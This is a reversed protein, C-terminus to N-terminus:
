TARHWPGNSSAPRSRTAIPSWTTAKFATASSPCHKTSSATAKPCTSDSCGPIWRRAIKWRCPVPQLTTATSWWVKAAPSTPKDQPPPGRGAAPTPEPSSPQGSRWTSERPATESSKSQSSAPPGDAEAHADVEFRHGADTWTTRYVPPEATVKTTTLDQARRVSDPLFLEPHRDIVGELASALGVIGAERQTAETHFDRLNRRDWRMVAGELGRVMDPGGLNLLDGSETWYMRSSMSKPNGLDAPPAHRDQRFTIYDFREPTRAVWSRPMMQTGDPAFEASPFLNPDVLRGNTRRFVKHEIVEYSTSAPHLTHVWAPATVPFDGQASSPQANLRGDIGLLVLLTM